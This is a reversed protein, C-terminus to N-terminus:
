TMNLQPASAESSKLIQAANDVEADSIKGAIAGVTDAAQDLADNLKKANALYEQMSSQFAQGASGQFSPNNVDSAHGEARTIMGQIDAHKQNMKDSFTRIQDPTANFGM